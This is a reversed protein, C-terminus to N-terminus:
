KTNKKNRKEYTDTNNRTFIKEVLGKIFAAGVVNKAIAVHQRVATRVEEVDSIINLTEEHVDRSLADVRKMFRVLYVVFIVLVITIIITAIATIMFFINTMLVDNM